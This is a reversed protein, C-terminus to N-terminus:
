LGQGYELVVVPKTAADPDLSTCKEWDTGMAELFPEVGGLSFSLNPTTFHMPITKAANIRKALSASAKADLTFVGGVPIMLVDVKGFAAIEEDTLSHGLDGMHLIRKGEAEISFIANQGRKAGKVEDHFSPYGTVTLGDFTHVGTERVIFEPNLEGIYNHDHHGHSMTVINAKTTPMAYGVAPDFPDTVISIGNNLTIRFSAHGIWQILM